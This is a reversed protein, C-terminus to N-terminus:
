VTALASIRVTTSYSVTDVCAKFVEADMVKRAKETSVSVLNLFQAQSMTARVASPDLTVREIQSLKLKAHTGIIADMGSEILAQKIEDKRAKAAKEAADAAVYEDVLTKLATVNSM